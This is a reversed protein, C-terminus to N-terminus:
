VPRKDLNITIPLGLPNILPAAIAIVLLWYYVRRDLQDLREWITMPESM